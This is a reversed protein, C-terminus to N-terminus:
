LFPQPHLDRFILCKEVVRGLDASIEVSSGSNEVFDTSFSNIDDELVDLVAQYTRNQAGRPTQTSGVAAEDIGRVRRARAGLGSLAHKM